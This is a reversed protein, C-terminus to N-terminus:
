RNTQGYTQKNTKETETEIDIEKERGVEGEREGERYNM